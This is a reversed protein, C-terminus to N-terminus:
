NRHSDAMGLLFKTLAFGVLLVALTTFFGKHRWYQWPEDPKLPKSLVALFRQQKLSDIRTTEAATLSAQYLESQFKLDAELAALQAAQAPLNRGDPSVLAEREAAVQRQLESVQVEAQRIEPAKPDVFQRRLAALQVKQKALEAELAAILGGGLQAETLASFLKRDQQFSELASSATKVKQLNEAVQQKAFDLQRRYVDQNLRNVFVEAQQNLFSNVRIATDADFGLTTIRLVGSGEDLRILVQKRFLRYVDERSPSFWLGAFPDLGKQAYAQRFNFQKELDELVQPSELYTRLYRSDELSGQNGGGLLNGLSLGDAASGQGAKRVVVDSRVQYRDRGVGYFFLFAILLPAGLGIWVRRPGNVLRRGIQRRRQDKQQYKGPAISPLIGAQACLLQNYYRWCETFREPLHRDLRNLWRRIRRWAEWAPLRVLCLRKLQMPEPVQQLELILPRPRNVHVVRFRLRIPFLPRGQSMGYRGSRLLGTVRPNDGGHQILFLYWGKPVVRGRPRLWLQDNSASISVGDSPIVRWDVGQGELPDIPSIPSWLWDRRLWLLRLFSM